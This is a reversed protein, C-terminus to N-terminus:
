FTLIMMEIVDKSLPFGIYQFKRNNSFNHIIHLFIGKCGKKDSKSNVLYLFREQTYPIKNVNIVSIRQRKCLEIVEHCRFCYTKLHKIDVEWPDGCYVEHHVNLTDEKSNCLLCTFDDRNLVELRKRQWRPDLLKESYKM